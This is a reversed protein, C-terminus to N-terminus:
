CNSQIKKKTNKCPHLESSSVLNKKNMKQKKHVILCTCMDKSVCTTRLSYSPILIEDITTGVNSTKIINITDCDSQFVCSCSTWCEIVQKRYYSQEIISRKPQMSKYDLYSMILFKAESIGQIQEANLLTHLVSNLLFSPNSCKM